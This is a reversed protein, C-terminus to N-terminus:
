IAQMSPVFYSKSIRVFSRWCDDTMEGNLKKVTYSGRQSDSALKDVVAELEAFLQLLFLVIM